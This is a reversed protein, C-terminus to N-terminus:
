KKLSNFVEFYQITMTEEDITNLVPVLVNSKIAIESAAKASGMDTWYVIDMFTGDEALATKREVFGTQKELFENLGVIARKAAELSAGKKPKGKVVEVIKVREMKIKKTNLQSCGAVLLVILGIILKKM